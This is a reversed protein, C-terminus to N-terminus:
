WDRSVKQRLVETQELVKAAAPSVSVTKGDRTKLVVNVLTGTSSRETVTRSPHKKASKALVYNKVKSRRSVPM